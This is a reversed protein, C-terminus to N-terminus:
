VGLWSVRMTKYKYTAAAARHAWAHDERTGANGLTLEVGEEDAHKDTMVEGEKAGAQEGDGSGHFSFAQFSYRSGGGDRIAWPPLMDSARAPSPPPTSPPSSYRAMKRLRRPSSSPSGNHPTAPANSSSSSAFYNPYSSDSLQKSLNKLWAPVPDAGGSASGGGDSAGQHTVPAASGGIDAMHQDGAPPKGGQFVFGAASLIYLPFSVSLKEKPFFAISCHIALHRRSFLFCFNSKESSVFSSASFVTPKCWWSDVVSCV